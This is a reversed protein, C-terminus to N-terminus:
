KAWGLLESVPGYSTTEHNGATAKVLLDNTTQYAVGSADPALIASGAVAEDTFLPQNTASRPDIALIDQNNGSIMLGITSWSFHSIKQAQYLVTEGGTELNHNVLQYQVRDNGRIYAITKSDPSFTPLHVITPETLVTKQNQGTISMTHLEIGPKAPNSSATTYVITTNDPSLSLESTTIFQEILTTQSGSGDLAVSVLRTAPTNGDGVMALLTTGDKSISYITQLQQTRGKDSFVTTKQKTVVDIRQIETGKKDRVGVILTGTPGSAGQGLPSSSDTPAVATTNTPQSAGRSVLFGLLLLMGVFLFSIFRQM